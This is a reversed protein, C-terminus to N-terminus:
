KHDRNRNDKRRKFKFKQSSANAITGCPQKQEDKRRWNVGKGGTRNEGTEVEITEDYSEENYSSKGIWQRGEKRKASRQEQREKEAKIADPTLKVQAHIQGDRSQKVKLWFMQEWLMTFENIFKHVITFNTTIVLNEQNHMKATYTWNYSGTFAIRGDIIGFKNHMHYKSNDVKVDIGCRALEKIQSGSDQMKNNDTIIRIKIGREHLKKLCDSLVDDSITFVCLDVTKQAQSMYFAINEPIDQGPSFLVDHLRFSYKEIQDFTTELWRIARLGDGGVGLRKAETFLRSKLEGREARDLSNLKKVIGEPLPAHRDLHFIDTFYSIIDEM